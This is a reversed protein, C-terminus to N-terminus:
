LISTCISYASRASVEKESGLIMGRTQFQQKTALTNTPRTWNIVESVNEFLRVSWDALEHAIMGGFERALIRVNPVIWFM